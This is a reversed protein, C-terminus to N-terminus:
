TLINKWDVTRSCGLTLRAIYRRGLYQVCYGHEIWKVRRRLVFLVEIESVSCTDFGASRFPMNRRLSLWTNKTRHMFPTIVSILLTDVIVLMVTCPVREWCLVTDWYCLKLKRCALAAEWIAHTAFSFWSVLSHDSGQLYERLEIGVPVAVKRKDGFGPRGQTCSLREYLTYSHRETRPPLAVAAHPQDWM